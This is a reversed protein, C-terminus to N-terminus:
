MTQLELRTRIRTRCSMRILSVFVVYSTLLHHDARILDILYIVITCIARFLCIKKKERKRADSTIAHTGERNLLVRDDGVALYFRSLPAPFRCYWPFLLIWPRISNSRARRWPTFSLHLKGSITKSVFIDFSTAGPVTVGVREGTKSIVISIIPRNLSIESNKKKKEKTCSKEMLEAIRKERIPELAYEVIKIGETMGELTM